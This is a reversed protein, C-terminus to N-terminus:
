APPLAAPEVRTARLEITPAGAPRPVHNIITVSVPTATQDRPTSAAMAADQLLKIASLADRVSGYLISKQLKRWTASQMLLAFAQKAYQERLELLASDDPVPVLLQDDPVVAPGDCPRDADAPAAAESPPASPPAPKVPSGLASAPLMEGPSYQQGFLEATTM